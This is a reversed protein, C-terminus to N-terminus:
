AVLNRIIDLLRVMSNTDLEGYQELALWLKEKESSPLTGKLFMIYKTAADEGSAIELDKYSLDSVYAPLVNKISHSSLQEPKYLWRKQFPEMLDVIRDNIAKLQKAFEPFEAALEENRKVEFSQNYVVISGERGCLDVLNTLLVPRPDTKQKHVFTSHQPSEGPRVQVHLSFQFPIQQYPSTGEYLPVPYMLTEYDLFYLPYELSDLFTRLKEKEIHGAHNKHCSVDIAKYGTPLLDSPIDTINFSKTRAFVEDAKNIPFVDYISYDPVKRWCHYKYDCQFPKFCRSGVEFIPQDEKKLVECLESSTKDIKDQKSLVEGTINVLKFLQSPEVRGRRVYKNNLLMLHCHKIRYGASQFVYYQFAVDDIHYDKIGTSSKVEILDWKNENPVKRLIDIRSYVGNKPHIATAEFLIERGEAVLKNTSQVAEQVNWYDEKVETGKGFYQKALTGVEHGADFRMQTALDTEPKLDKRNHFFWLALPCQLGKIYQTKSFTPNCKM